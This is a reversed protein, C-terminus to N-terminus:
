NTAALQKPPLKLRMNLQLGDGGKLVDKNLDRIETWRTGSGLQDAAIKWLNDNEKVTYYTVGPQPAAPQPRQVLPRQPAAPNDRGPPVNVAVGFPPIVYTKGVIVLHPEAQLSPNARIIAERTAKNSTGLYRAALRSVSDNPEAKIERFGPPLTPRAERSPPQAGPGNSHIGVPGDNGGKVPVLLENFKRSANDLNGPVASNGPNAAAVQDGAGNGENANAPSNNDPPIIQVNSDDPPNQALPERASTGNRPIRMQSPDSGPEIHVITAGSGPQRTDRQTQVPIPPEVHGPVIVATSGRDQHAAGPANVSDAVNDYAGTLQARMPDSTTNIHDSLLIGIVIIFALGVLLGIKTERTM